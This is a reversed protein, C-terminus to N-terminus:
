PAPSSFFMFESQHVHATETRGVEDSPILCDSMRMMRTPTESVEAM